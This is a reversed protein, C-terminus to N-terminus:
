SSLSPLCSLIRPDNTCSTCIVHSPKFDTQEKSSDKTQLTIMPFLLYLGRWWWPLSALIKAMRGIAWHWFLSIEEMVHRLAYSQNHMENDKSEDNCIKNNTMGDRKKGASQSHQMFFFSRKHIRYKNGEIKNSWGRAISHCACLQNGKGWQLFLKLSRNEWLWRNLMLM